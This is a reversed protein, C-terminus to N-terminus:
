QGTVGPVRYTMTKTSGNRILTFRIQDGVVHEALVSQVEEPRRVKEGDLATIVDGPEIGAKDAASYGLVDTVVVGRTDSLKIYQKVEDTLEQVRFGPEGIAHNIKIGKKLQDVVTKVKNIPIAFGIGISGSEISGGETMSQATTRIVANVGVVEGNANLLPGGSNGSSIAADTQLMGRYNHNEMLGYNVQTNSIVGVTVTPKDNIDFLGFPNGMAIAWEGVLVQDSNGLPLYNFNNGEIKILAIDTSPDSGVLKGEHEEGDTTTVIIKTAGGAVHDNTVVYGDRSIIFGSGLAKVQVKQRMGFGGMFPGFFPDNGFPNVTRVETSIVNIGVVAPSAKAVATTIANRRSGSITANLSDRDVSRQDSVTYVHDANPGSEKNCSALPTTLTLFSLLHLLLLHM